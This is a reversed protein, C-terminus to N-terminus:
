NWTQGKKPVFKQQLNNNHTKLWAFNHLDHVLTDGYYSAWFIIFFSTFYMHTYMEVTLFDHLIMFFPWAFDHLDHVLSDIVM